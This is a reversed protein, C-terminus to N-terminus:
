QIQFADNGLLLEPRVDRLSLLACPELNQISFIGLLVASLFQELPLSVTLRNRAPMRTRKSACLQFFIGSVAERKFGSAFLQAVSSDATTDKPRRSGNKRRLPIGYLSLLENLTRKYILELM